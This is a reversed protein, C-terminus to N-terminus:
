TLGAASPFYALFYRQWERRKRPLVGSVVQIIADCGRIDALFQNGLGKGESAGAVLGAIDMLEISSPITRAANSLAALKELRPEPVPVVGRNPEITCFPFNGMEAAETSCLANFLTSKGVNPMGVLGARVAYARTSTAGTALWGSGIHRGVSRFLPLM